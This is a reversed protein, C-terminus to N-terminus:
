GQEIGEGPGIEVGLILKKGGQVGRDPSAPQFVAPHDEKRICHAKDMVQGFLQNGGEPGGQFLDSGGIDQEVHNVDAM